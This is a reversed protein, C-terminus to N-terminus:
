DGIRLPHHLGVRQKQGRQNQDAAGGAVAEPAPADEAPAHRQEGQGREPAARRAADILADGRACHLTHAGRQEARPAQSDDARCEVLLLAPAGDASPGAEAGDHHRHPRYEAAEQDVM